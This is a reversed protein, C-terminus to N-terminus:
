YFDAALFGCGHGRSTYESFAGPRLSEVAHQTQKGQESLANIRGISQSESSGQEILLRM